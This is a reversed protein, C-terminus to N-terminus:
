FHGSAEFDEDKIEAIGVSVLYLPDELEGDDTHLTFSNWVRIVPGYSPDAFTNVYDGWIAANAATGINASLSASLSVFPIQVGEGSLQAAADNPSQLGVVSIYGGLQVRPAFGPDGVETPLPLSRGRVEYYAANGCQVLWGAPPETVAAGPYIASGAVPLARSGPLAVIIDCSGPIVELRM